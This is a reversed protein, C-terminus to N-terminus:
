LFIYDMNALNTQHINGSNDSLFLENFLVAMKM